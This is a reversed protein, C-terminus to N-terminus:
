STSTTGSSTVRPRRRGCTATRTSRTTWRPDGIDVRRMRNSGAEIAFARTFGGTDDRHELRLTNGAADYGYRETYARAKTLDACRPRDDWPAREPQRDCERGTATLLRYLPDYEFRRNLANGSALLQALM